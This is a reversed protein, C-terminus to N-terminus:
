AASPERATSSAAARAASTGVASPLVMVRGWRRDLLSVLLAVAGGIETCREIAQRLERTNVHSAGDGTM